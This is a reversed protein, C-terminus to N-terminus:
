PERLVPNHWPPLEALIISSESKNLTLQYSHFKGQQLYYKVQREFGWLDKILISLDEMLKKSACHFLIDGRKRRSGDTILLGVFFYKKLEGDGELIFSPIRVVSAKKGCPVEFDKNIIKFLEVSYKSFMWLIAKDKRKVSTLKGELNFLRSFLNGFLLALKKNTNFFRIPYIRYGEGNRSVSLCGDGIFM